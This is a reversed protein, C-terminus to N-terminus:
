VPATDADEGDAPEPEQKTLYDWQSPPPTTLVTRAIVEPPADIRPPLPRPPRGPGSRPSTKSM